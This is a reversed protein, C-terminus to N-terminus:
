SYINFYIYPERRLFPAMYVTSYVFISFHFKLRGVYEFGIFDCIKWHSYFITYLIISFIVWDWFTRLATYVPGNNSTADYKTIVSSEWSCVEISDGKDITRTGDFNILQGNKRWTRQATPCANVTCQLKVTTQYDATQDKPTNMAQSIMNFCHATDTCHVSFRLNQCIMMVDNFWVSPITIDAM